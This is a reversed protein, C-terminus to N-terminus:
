SGLAIRVAARSAGRVLLMVTPNGTVPHPQPGPCGNGPAPMWTHPLPVVRFMTCGQPAISNVYVHVTNLSFLYAVSILSYPIDDVYVLSAHVCLLFICKTLIYLFLLPM